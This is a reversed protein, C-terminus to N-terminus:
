SHTQTPTAPSTDKGCEAQVEDRDGTETIGSYRLVAFTIFHGNIYAFNEVNNLQYSLTIGKQKM